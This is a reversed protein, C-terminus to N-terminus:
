DAKLVLIAELNDSDYTEFAEKACELALEVPYFHHSGGLLPFAIRKFDNKEALECVNCYVNILEEKPQEVRDYIPGLVHLVYEYPLKFGPTSRKKKCKLVTM